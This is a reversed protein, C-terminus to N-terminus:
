GLVGSSAESIREEEQTKPPLLRMSLRQRQLEVWFIIIEQKTMKPHQEWTEREV